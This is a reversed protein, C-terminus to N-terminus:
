DYTSRWFLQRRPTGERLEAPAAGEDRGRGAVDGVAGAAGSGVDHDPREGRLWTWLVNARAFRESLAGGRAPGQESNDRYSRVGRGDDAAPRQDRGAQANKGSLDRGETGGYRKVDRGIGRRVMLGRDILAVGERMKGACFAGKQGALVSGVVVLDYENAQM